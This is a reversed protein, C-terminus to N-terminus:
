PTEHAPEAEALGLADAAKRLGDRHSATLALLYTVKCEPHRRMQTHVAELLAHTAEEPDRKATGAGLVPFLMSSLRHEASLEGFREYANAVARDLRDLVSHYGEGPTGKVSALHFVFRIGRKALETTPSPIVAGAGVPLKVQEETITRLLTTNLNDDRVHGDMGKTADLYRLLGSMSTDYYRAMQLDTNESSVVVDIDSLNEISGCLIEIRANPNGAVLFSRDRGSPLSQRRGTEVRRRIEDELDSATYLRPGFPYLQFLSATRWDNNAVHAVFNRVEEAYRGDFFYHSWLDYYITRLDKIDFPLNSGEEALVIVPCGAAQAVALEYFVNPNHGSVVAICLDAQLIERFMQESINGPEAMHDSRQTHVDFDRMAPEIIFRFVGDAAKREPSDPQGIPSIVFCSRQKMRTQFRTTDVRSLNLCSFSGAEADVM